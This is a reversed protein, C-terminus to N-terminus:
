RVVLQIPASFPLEFYNFFRGVDTPPGGSVHVAGAVIADQM